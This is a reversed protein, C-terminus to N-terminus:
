GKVRIGLHTIKFNSSQKSKKRKLNMKRKLHNENEEFNLDIVTTAEKELKEITEKSILDSNAILIVVRKKKRKKSSFIKEILKDEKKASGRKLLHVKEIKFLYGTLSDFVIIPNKLKIKEVKEKMEDIKMKTEYANIIIFNPYNLIDTKFYKKFIRLIDEDSGDANVLIVNKKKKIWNNILYYALMKKGIGTPGKILVVENEGFGGLKDFFRLGTKLM